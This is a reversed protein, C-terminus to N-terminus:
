SDHHHVRVGVIKFQSASAAVNETELLVEFDDVSRGHVAKKLVDSFENSNFMFDVATDIGAVTTGEVLLTRGQQGLGGTLAILAYNKHDPDGPYVRYSAQEPAAPARNVVTHTSTAADIRFDFNLQRAYLDVWPNGWPDGVLIVNGAKLDDLTVDRSYRVDLIRSLRAAMATTKVAMILDAVSTYRQQGFKVPPSGAPLAPNILLQPGLKKEAYERVDVTRRTINMTMALGSDGSVLLTPHDSALVARWFVARPDMPWFVFAAAGAVVVLAAVLAGAKFLWPPRGPKVPRADLNAPGAEVPPAAPGQREFVPAYGGPPITLRWASGAGEGLTYLELKQRLQRAASRVITDEAPNFHASRGFVHIGIQQESIDDARDTSACACVYLLFARLRPSNKFYRSALIQQVLQDRAAEDDAPAPNSSLLPHSM